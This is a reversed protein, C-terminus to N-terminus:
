NEATRKLRKESKKVEEGKLNVTWEVGKRALSGRGKNTLIWCIEHKM